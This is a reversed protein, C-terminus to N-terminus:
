PQETEILCEELFALQRLYRSHGLRVLAEGNGGVSMVAGMGCTAAGFIEFAPAPRDTTVLYTM